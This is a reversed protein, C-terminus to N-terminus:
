RRHGRGGPRGLDALRGATPALLSGIVLAASLAGFVWQESLGFDAAMGPALYQVVRVGGEGMVPEILIAATEPGIAKKVAEIDNYPVQDFGEVPQQQQPHDGTLLVM